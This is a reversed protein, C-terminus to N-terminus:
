IELKYMEAELCVSELHQWTNRKPHCAKIALAADTTITATASGSATTTRSISPSEQSAKHTKARLIKRPYAATQEADTDACSNHRKVHWRKMDTLARFSYPSLRHLVIMPLCFTQKELQEVFKQRISWAIRNRRFNAFIDIHAVKLYPVDTAQFLCCLVVGLRTAITKHTGGTPVYHVVPTQTKEGLRAMGYANQWHGFGFLATTRKANDDMTDVYTKPTPM